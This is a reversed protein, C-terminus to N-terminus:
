FMIVASFRVLMSEAVTSTEDDSQRAAVSGEGENSPYTLGLVEFFYM